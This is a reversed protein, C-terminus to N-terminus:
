FVLFKLRSGLESDLERIWHQINNELKNEEPNGSNIQSDCMIERTMQDVTWKVGHKWKISPKPLTNSTFDNNGERNIIKNIAELINPKQYVYLTSQTVNDRYSKPLDYLLNFNGNKWNNGYFDAILENVPCL